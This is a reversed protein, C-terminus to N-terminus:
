AVAVGGTVDAIEAALALAFGRALFRPQPSGAQQLGREAGHGAIAYAGM